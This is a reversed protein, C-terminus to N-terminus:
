FPWMLGRIRGDSFGPAKRGEALRFSPNMESRSIGPQTHTGVKGAVYMEGGAELMRKGSTLNDEEKSLLGM